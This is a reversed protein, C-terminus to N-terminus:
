GYIQMFRSLLGEADPAPRLKGDLSKMEPDHGLYEERYIGLRARIDDAGMESHFQTGYAPKGRVRITQNPCLASRALEVMTDPIRAVRDHPGMHAPLRDPLGFFLLDDRGEETLEIDHTGIEARELDHIVQGGLARALFQHGWCSGFFPRSEDIWRRVVNTLAQSFPYDKVASHRGAGGVLLVGAHAVHEWEIEPREVVNIRELDTEALGCRDAFCRVEQSEATADDRVQILLVPAASM